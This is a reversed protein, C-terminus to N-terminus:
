TNILRFRRCASLFEDRSVYCGVLNHHHSKISQRGHLMRWNNMILMTGPKMNISWVYKVIENKLYEYDGFFEALESQPLTHM